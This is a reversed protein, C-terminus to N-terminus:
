TSFYESQSKVLELYRSSLHVVGIKEINNGEQLEQVIKRMLVIIEVVLENPYCSILLKKDHEPNFTKPKSPDLYNNKYFNIVIRKLEM